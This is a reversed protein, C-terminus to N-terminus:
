RLAFDIAEETLEEPSDTSIIRVRRRAERQFPFVARDIQEDIENVISSTYGTTGEPPRLIFFAGHGGNGLIDQANILSLAGANLYYGRTIQATSYVSVISGFRTSRHTLDPEAFIQLDLLHPAEKADHLAVPDRRFVRDVMNPDRDRALRTVKKRLDMTSLTPARLPEADSPDGHDRISVMTQYLEDLISEADDGAAYARQGFLIQSSPSRFSGHHQLHEQIASVLYRLNSEGDEGYLCRFAATSDLLKWHLKRKSDQFVVGVNFREGTLPDPMVSVTCWKGSVAAPEESNAEVLLNANM